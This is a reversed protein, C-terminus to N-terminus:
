KDTNLLARSALSCTGQLLVYRGSSIIQRYSVIGKAPFLSTFTDTSSICVLVQVREKKNM